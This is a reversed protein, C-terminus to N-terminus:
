DGWYTIDEEVADAPTCDPDDEVVYTQYLGAAYERAGDPMYPRLREAAEDIWTKKAKDLDPLEPSASAPAIAPCSPAHWVQECHPCPPLELTPTTTM